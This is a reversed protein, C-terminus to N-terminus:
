ANGFTFRYEIGTVAAAVCSTTAISSGLRAYLVHSVALSSEHWCIAANIRDSSSCHSVVVAVVDAVSDCVVDAVVLGVVVVVGVVVLAVVVGVVVVAVVLGVVVVGVDVSVVLVVGVVEVLAVVLGDVVRVVVVVAVDDGVVVGVVVGHWSVRASTTKTTSTEVETRDSDPHLWVAFTLTFLCNMFPNTSRMDSYMELSPTRTPTTAYLPAARTTKLSVWRVEACSFLEISPKVKAPSM